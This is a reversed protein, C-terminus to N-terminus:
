LILGKLIKLVENIFLQRNDEFARTLWNNDKTGSYRPNVRFPRKFKSGIPLMVANGSRSNKSKGFVVGYEANIIRDGELLLWKLWELEDGKETIYSQEPISFVDSFDSVVMQIRIRGALQTGTRRIKSFYVRASDKVRNAVADVRIEGVGPYFGFEAALVGGTYMSEAEPTHLLIEKILARVRKRFETRVKRLRENLQRALSDLMAREAKSISFKLRPTAKINGPM